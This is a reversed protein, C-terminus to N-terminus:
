ASVRELYGARGAGEQMALHERFPAESKEKESTQINLTEFTNKASRRLAPAAVSAVIVWWAVSISRRIARSRRSREPSCSITASGARRLRPQRTVRRVGATM